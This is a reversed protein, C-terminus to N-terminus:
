AAIIRSRKHLLDRILGILVIGSLWLHLLARHHTSGNDFAPSPAIISSSEIDYFHAETGKSFPFFSQRLTLHPESAFPIVPYESQKYYM